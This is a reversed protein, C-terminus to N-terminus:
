QGGGALTMKVIKDPNQVSGNDAKSGKKIKDVVDMGSTVVGVVTYNNNLFDADGLCIFFQSNASNPSGSRAMGVTGRKFPASSFEAPINPLTSGGTGNGKPDGTQAMFGDIVRHFKLGDYFGQGILTKLQKVHKPAIEPRLEITVRGDKTELLVTNEGARAPAALLMASLALGLVAHRRNM